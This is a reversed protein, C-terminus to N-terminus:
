KRLDASAKGLTEQMTKWAAEVASQLQAGAAESAVRVEHLSKHAAHRSLRLEKLRRQFATRLEGDAKKGEAALADVDADWKKMQMQMGAVYETNTTM